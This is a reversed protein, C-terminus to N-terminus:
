KAAVQVPYLGNWKQAPTYEFAGGNQGEVSVTVDDWRYANLAETIQPQIAKVAEPAMSYTEIMKRHFSYGRVHPFTGDYTVGVLHLWPDAVIPMRKKNDRSLGTLMQESPKSRVTHDLVPFVDRYAMLTTPILREPVPADPKCTVVFLESDQYFYYLCSTLMTVHQQYKVQTEMQVALRTPHNLNDDDWLTLVAGHASMMAYQLGDLQTKASRALVRVSPDVNLTDVYAQITSAYDKDSDVVILLEKNSYTQATFDLIARQLQGWRSPRSACLASVLPTDPM